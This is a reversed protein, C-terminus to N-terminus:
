WHIAAACSGIGFALCASLLGLAAAVRTVVTGRLVLAFLGCWMGVAIAGGIVIPVVKSRDNIAGVLCGLTFLVSTGGCVLAILAHLDSVDVRLKV